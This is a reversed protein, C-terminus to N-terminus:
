LTEGLQDFYHEQMYMAVGDHDNDYRTIEDAIAKTDDSGNLMCIGRGSAELMTNDNTTDGFSWVNELSFDHNDCLIKLAYAKSIRRDAFEILTSQTKFAKYYPNPHNKFYEEVELTQEKSMRFMIKANEHEYLEKDSSIVHIPKQSTVASKKMADDIRQAVLMGDQYIFANSPFPKMAKLIEQIWERKLKYSDIQKQKLNDWLESGNMGILFDFAFGFGWHPAYKQLEDVPRGSALGFYVGKEHLKEIMKKTKPTLERNSNILTSDIDCLVLRLKNSEM